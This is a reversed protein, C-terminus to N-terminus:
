QSSASSRQQHEHDNQRGPPRRRGDVFVVLGGTRQRLPDAGIGPMSAAM